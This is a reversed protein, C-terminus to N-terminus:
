IQPDFKKESVDRKRTKVTNNLQNTFERKTPSIPQIWHFAIPKRALFLVPSISLAVPSEQVIGDICGLLRFCM